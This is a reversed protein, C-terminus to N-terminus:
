HCRATGRQLAPWTHALLRLVPNFMTAPNECGPAEFPATRRAQLPEHLRRFARPEPGQEPQEVSVGFGPM